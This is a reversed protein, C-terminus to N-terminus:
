PKKAATDRKSKKASTDTMAPASGLKSQIDQAKTLHAQILPQAKQILAKLSTDQASSQATQLLALVSQHVAVENDIYAKDWAAGKAMSKMNDMMKQSSSQLTDNSPPQPTLNEKKVLALGQKRLEHHDRAMLRGFEKVSAATGKTAALQGAASDAANAEDVLAVINM